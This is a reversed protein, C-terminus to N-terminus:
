LVTDRGRFLLPRPPQHRLRRRDHRAAAGIDDDANVPRQAHRHAVDLCRDPRTHQRQSQGLGVAGVMDAQEGLDDVLDLGLAAHHRPRRAENRHDLGRRCEKMEGLNGAGMRPEAGEREAGLIEGGRGADQGLGFRQRHRLLHRYEGGAGGTDHRQAKDAGDGLEVIEVTESLRDAARPNPKM